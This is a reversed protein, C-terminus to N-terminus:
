QNPKRYLFAGSLGDSQDCTLFLLDRDAAARTWLPFMNKSQATKFSILDNIDAPFLTSYLINVQPYKLDASINM